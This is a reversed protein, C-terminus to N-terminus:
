AMAEMPEPATEGMSRICSEALMRIHDSRDGVHESAAALPDRIGQAQATKIGLVEVIIPDSGADAHLFYARVADRQGPRHVRGICQEHVGPSWDLEGFVVCRCVGQLGDVGAGSRLSMVLVRSDGRLFAQKAAEKQTTSEDGTFCVPRFEALADMWLAYVAHHWGYLLVSAESALLMRVFAAVYLAKAIGTAQRMRWDIEGAARM